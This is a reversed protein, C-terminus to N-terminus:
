HMLAYATQLKRKSPLKPKYTALHLQVQLRNMAVSPKRCEFIKLLLAETAKQLAANESTLNIRIITSWPSEAIEYELAEDVGLEQIVKLAVMRVTPHCDRAAEFAVDLATSIKIHPHLQSLCELAAARVKWSPDRMASTRMNSAALMALKSRHAASSHQVCRVFAALVNKKLTPACGLLHSIGDLAAKRADLHRSGFLVTRSLFNMAQQPTQEFISQM